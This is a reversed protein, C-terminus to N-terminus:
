PCVYYNTNPIYTYIGQMFSIIVIIIIIIVIIIIIINICNGSDARDLANTQPRKGAPIAPEFGDPPM